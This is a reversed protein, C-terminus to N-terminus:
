LFTICAGAGHAVQSTFFKAILIILQSLLTMGNDNELSVQEANKAKLKERQHGTKLQTGGPKGDHTAKTEGTSAERPPGTDYQLTVNENM